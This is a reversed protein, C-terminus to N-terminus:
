GVDAVRVIVARHDTGAVHVVAAAVVQFRGADVLVHDIPTSLWTPLWSPFTGAAAVGAVAAADVYGPLDRLPAHDLTADMDGALIGGPMDLALAGIAAVEERWRRLPDWSPPAPIRLKPSAPHVVAVSPGVGDVPEARVTGPTTTPVERYDGLAGSILLVSGWGPSGTDEGTFVQLGLGAEDLRELLPGRFWHATEQLAVVDAGTEEILAVLRAVGRFGGHVNLTLVTVEAVQEADAQPIEGPGPGRALLVGAHAAGCLGLVLAVALAGRWRGGRRRALRVVLVASVAGAFCGIAVWPRIGILQAVGNTTSLGVTAPDVLVVAAVAALALLLWGIVRVTAM